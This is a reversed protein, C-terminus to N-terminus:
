SLLYLSKKWNMWKNLLAYRSYSLLEKFILSEIARLNVAQWFSLWSIETLSKWEFSRFSWHLHIGFLWCYILVQFHILEGGIVGVSFYLEQVTNCFSAAILGSGSLIGGVIMVPRSGYKNVLVSSIPGLLYGFTWYYVPM